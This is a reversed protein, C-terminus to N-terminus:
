RDSASTVRTPTRTSTSSRSRAGGGPVLSERSTRGRSRTTVAVTEIARELSACSTEADGSYMEVDGADVVRIDQLGDVRMALSPRSADHGLYCAQRMASPGLRAGSRYSTGGDFPAGVIVVDADAFTGAEGLDCRDVGLFTIDPGFQAGYRSM